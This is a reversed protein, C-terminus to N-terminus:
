RLAHARGRNQSKLWAELPAFYEQMAEARLGSGTKEALLAEGDVTAGPALLSRLFDGVDRRGFYNAEQVGCRLLDGCIKRHLQFKIATALAYDYYQAADDNIHTKTAADCYEEGRQSPPVVGQYERVLEWWRANFRDVPLDKEYLEYEFRTMVGASFPLFVISAENLAQQLLWRTEDIREDAPLVGVERLYPQQFAALSILEGIGEHFARNAGERLLYPVGPRAYELYYYIHGLEHHTTGFWYADPVISM